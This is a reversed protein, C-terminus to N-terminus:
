AAYDYSATIAQGNPPYVVFTLAAGSITYHTTETLLVNNLYLKLSGEIPTHDLTFHTEAGDGEGVYEADIHLSSAADMRIFNKTQALTVLATNSLTM